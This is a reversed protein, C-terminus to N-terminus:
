RSPKEYQPYLLGFKTRSEVMVSPDGSESNLQLHIRPERGAEDFISVRGGREAVDVFVLPRKGRMLGLQGPIMTTSKNTEREWVGVGANSQLIQIQASRDYSNNGSSSEGVRAWTEGAGAKLESVLAKAGGAAQVRVVMETDDRQTEGVAGLYVSTKDKTIWAAGAIISTSGPTNITGQLNIESPSIVIKPLSADSPGVRISSATISNSTRWAALAPFDLEALKKRLLDNELKLSHNSTQFEDLRQSLKYINYQLQNLDGKTAGSILQFSLSAAIAAIIGWLLKDRM